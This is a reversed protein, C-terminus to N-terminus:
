GFMTGYWVNAVASPFRASATPLSRCNLAQMCQRPSASIEASSLNMSLAERTRCLSIRTGSIACFNISCLEEIHNSFSAALIKGTDYKKGDLLREEYLVYFSDGKRIDYAFDIVGGFINTLGMIISHPLAQKSGATFLSDEIVAHSYRLKIEPNRLAKSASFVEGNREIFLTELPSKTYRVAQLEGDRIQFSLEQGPHLKRLDKAEVTSRIIGYLVQDNLGVRKFIRSLSDGPRVRLTQWDPIHPKTDADARELDPAQAPSTFVIPKATPIQAIIPADTVSKQTRSNVSTEEPQPPIKLDLPIAYLREESEKAPTSILIFAMFLSIACIALVHKRPFNEFSAPLFNNYRIAITNRLFM